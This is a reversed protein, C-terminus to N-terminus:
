HQSMRAEADGETRMRVTERRNDMNVTLVRSAPNLCEKWSENHLETGCGPKLKIEGSSCVRRGEMGVHNQHSRISDSRVM